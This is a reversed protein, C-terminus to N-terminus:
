TSSPAVSERVRVERQPFPIEIGAAALARGIAVNVEHTLALRQNMDKAYVRIEFTLSSDAYATFHVAPPPEALALPVARVADLLLQRVNEPDSGYAVGVRLLVRTVQSTLTWNTVRETIFAKNPILVDRNDFDTLLTARARIRAVTGTIDGVTITDGIRIPREALVILGSVFNAVIEQLGFGLGVGLAAVLWQVNSWSIGLMSAATLIGIITLGYRAVTKIAYNADAQLALRKLLLADLMGGVNRTAIYVAGAVLLALLLGGLTFNRSVKQGDATDSYSWLKVDGLVELAPFAGRWILFVGLIFAIALLLNLMQRTQASIAAIDLFETRPAAGDAGEEALPASKAAHTQQLRSRQILSWLAVLGYLMIIGLVLLLTLMLMRYLYAAAFYFGLASLGALLLPILIGAWYLWRVALHATASRSQAGHAPAFVREPRLGTAWFGSIMLLVLILSLRGLSQVTTDDNSAWALSALFVLPVYGFMLRQLSRQVDHAREGNWGFHRVAVGNPDLLWVFGGGLLLVLAASTFGNAVAHTFQGAGASNALMVGTAWALLAGPLALLVTLALAGLTHSIRYQHLWVARPALSELQRKLRARLVLLTGALVLAVSPLLPAAVAERMLTRGITSWNGPSSIWAASTGLDLFTRPGIPSLPVWFILRSFEDRTSSARTLLDIEAEEADQEARLLAEQQAALRTLLVRRDVLSQRSAAEIAAARDAPVLALVERLTKALLEGIEPLAALESETKLKAETTKAVLARREARAQAFDGAKPLGRLGAILASGLDDRLGPTAARRQVIRLEREMGALQDRRRTVESMTRDVAIGTEAAEARLRANFAALERVSDPMDPLESRRDEVERRATEAELSRRQDLLARVQKLLAEGREQELRAIERRLQTLRVRLPQYRLEQDLLELRARLADRRARTLMQEADSLPSAEARAKPTRLEAEIQEIEARLTDQERRAALASSGAEEVAKEFRAADGVASDRATRRQLELQELEELSLEEGLPSAERATADQELARLRREASRLDEPARALRDRLGDADARAKAAAEVETLASKYIERIRDRTAPTIDSRAEIVALQQQLADKTPPREVASAAPAAVLLVLGAVFLCIRSGLLPTFANLIFALPLSL